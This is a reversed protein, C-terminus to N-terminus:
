FSVTTAIGPSINIFSDYEAWCDLTVTKTGSTQTGATSNWFTGYISTNMGNTNLGCILNQSRGSVLELDLGAAFTGRRNTNKQNLTPDGAGLITAQDITYSTRDIMTDFSDANLNHRSKLLELYCEDHGGNTITTGPQSGCQIGSTQPLISSGYQFYWSQLYNRCRSSLYKTDKYTLSLSTPNEERMIWLINTLSAVNLNLDLKFTSSSASISNTYNRFAKTPVILPKGGASSLLMSEAQPGLELVQCCLNVNSLTYSTPFTADSVVSSDYAGAGMVKDVSNLSLVITFGNHLPTFKQGLGGLFSFLPIGFEWKLTTAASANKSLVYGHQPAIPIGSLPGTAVATNFTMYDIVYTATTAVGTMTLTPTSGGTATAVTCQIWQGIPTEAASLALTNSAGGGTLLFTVGDGAGATRKIWFNCSFVAPNAVYAALSGSTLTGSAGTVWTTAVAQGDIGVAGTTVSGTVVTWVPNTTSLFSRIVGSSVSYQDPDSVIKGPCTGCTANFHNGFENSNSSIDMLTSILQGHGSTSELLTSGLYDYVEIKNFFGFAGPTDLLLDTAKTGATFAGALNMRFRLYSDKTLYSRQLRPINIQITNSGSSDYTSNSSQVKFMYSRAQPMTPPAALRLEKPMVQACM